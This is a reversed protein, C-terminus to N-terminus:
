EVFMCDGCSGDDVRSAQVEEIKWRVGTTVMLTRTEHICAGRCQNTLCEVTAFRATGAVVTCQRALPLEAPREKPLLQRIRKELVSATPVQVASAREIANTSVLAELLPVRVKPDDSLVAIRAMDLAHARHQVVREALMSAAFARMQADGARIQLVLTEEAIPDALAAGAAVGLVVLATWRM